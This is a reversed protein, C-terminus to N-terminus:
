NPSVIRVPLKASNFKRIRPARLFLLFPGLYRCKAMWLSQRKSLNSIKRLSVPKIRALFTVLFLQTTHSNLDSNTIKTLLANTPKEVNRVHGKALTQNQLPFDSDSIDTISAPPAYPPPLAPAAKSGIVNTWLGWTIKRARLQTLNIGLCLKRKLLIVVVCFPWHPFGCFLPCFNNEDIKM